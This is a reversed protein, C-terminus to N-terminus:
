ISLSSVRSTHQLYMGIDGDKMSLGLLVVVLLAGLTWCSISIHVM